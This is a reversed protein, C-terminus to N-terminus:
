RGRRGKMLDLISRATQEAEEAPVRAATLRRKIEKRMERQIDEKQTWDVIMTLPEIAEVILSSLERNAPDYHPARPEAAFLPAGRQLIRYIAYGSPTLGLQEATQAHARTEKLLADLLEIQKAEDIRQAKRDAVIRELRERLSTYFAPSEELKIHIEDRLAHEMESARAAPSRHVALREDLEKSFLSARQILSQIGEVTVADDILEKVKAGCDSIDLQTDHFRASAARRIKGVWRLDDLYPLARPDPLLIDLSQSLRRFALNFEARVDEPELVMVCQQLDNRDNVGLFFRLVAAHRAQLRPLEDTKPTMAGRMDSPSFIQLAEQLAESVGWYDVVLGYTKLEAPRNVRAIAQFLTHEKLPSDLYMVQEIPADFGTLLMHCVILIAPDSGPRLFRAILDRRESETTRHRAIHAADDNRSSFIIASPPGDLRDLTEKYAAATERSVVVLQAKFGGPQIGTRYHDILDRCVAEIRRPATAIAAETVYKKKIAEREGESRDAFAREFLQDISQGIIRLEPLRSEYLIPVTAGDAVAQEITYKDIYDGFTQLTSRDRKDIPTGSFGFFAANPLARRMNAALGGYQTRHAEDALVFINEAASLIPHQAQPEVARAAKSRRHAPTGTLEQFKQVTTMVTRGTPGSLLVRLHKVNRAREPSQFGCNTFTETIQDDLDVRDTVIVITPNENRPDRRLKLALWLMTLSKGSGQTHWIVGGRGAPSKATRVRGLAKNVAAFQQYRCVKRVVASSSPDRQFVVFNRVVDLLNGPALLGYFLVEQASPERGLERELEAVTRPYSAKWEAYFRQTTGITGYFAAQDCTVVLIQAAEFLRPAGRDKYSEGIEQYRLLQDIADTKWKEGLTPSKCEIVVLPLGNVYLVIDPVIPVRAGHIRLQRTVVLDNNGANDFDFFRVSSRSKRGDGQDQELAVGYTLDIYLKQNAEFLGAAQVHTVARTAKGIDEASLWPNLRKLAAGLRASLVATKVSDREANLVEPAVYTYGLRQLLAVAPSESLNNETWARGYVPSM